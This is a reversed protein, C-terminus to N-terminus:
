SSTSGSTPPASRDGPALKAASAGVAGFVLLLAAMAWIWVGRSVVPRLRRRSASREMLSTSGRENSVGSASVDGAVGVTVVREVM